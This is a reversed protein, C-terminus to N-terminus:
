RPGPNDFTALCSRLEQNAASASIHVRYYSGSSATDTFAGSDLVEYTTGGTTDTSGLQTLTPSGGLLDLTYKYVSMSVTGSPAVVGAKVSTLVAGPPLRFELVRTGAGSSVPYDVANKYQFTDASTDYDGTGGLMVPVTDARAAKYDYTNSAHDILFRNGGIPAAMDISSTGTITSGNYVHAGTFTYAKNLFEVQNHLDKLYGVIWSCLLNLIYNGYPGVFGLGPVWGQALAGAGPSVKTATGSEPGSSFNADSAWNPDSYPYPM